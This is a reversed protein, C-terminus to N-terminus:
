HRVDTAGQVVTVDDQIVVLIDGTSSLVRWRRLRQGRIKVPDYASVVIGLLGKWGTSWDGSSFLVLDGVRLSRHM